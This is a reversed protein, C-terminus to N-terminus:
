LELFQAGTIVMKPPLTIGTAFVYDGIKLEGSKITQQLARATEHAEVFDRPLRRLNAAIIKDDGGDKGKRAVLLMEGMGTDASFSQLNETATGIVMIDSYNGVIHARFKRWSNQGAASLPLVAALVGGPKLKMDALHCFAAPLM